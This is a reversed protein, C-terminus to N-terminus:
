HGATSTALDDGQRHSRAPSGKQEPSWKKIEDPRTGGIEYLKPKDFIM